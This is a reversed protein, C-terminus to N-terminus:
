HKTYELMVAEMKCHPRRQTLGTGQGSRKHRTYHTLAVGYFGMPM